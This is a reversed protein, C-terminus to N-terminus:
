AAEKLEDLRKKISEIAGDKRGLNYVEQLLQRQDENNCLILAAL